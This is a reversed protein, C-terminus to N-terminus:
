QLKYQEPNKLKEMTLPQHLVSMLNRDSVRTFKFRDEEFDRFSRYNLAYLRVEKLRKYAYMSDLAEMAFSPSMNVAKELHRMATNLERKRNMYIMSNAYEYHLVAMDPVKDLAKAFADQVNTTRAGYTLRGSFKGVRRMIGADVGALLALALPHDPTVALTRNALEKVKRLYGRAVAVPIPAEEAIRGLAYLRGMINFVAMQRVAAREDEAMEKTLDSYERTKDVVEQLLMEKVSKRDALYIGYLVQSFRGPLLGLYGLEAGKNRAKQYRGAFFLRWTDILEDHYRQPDNLLASDVDSVAGPYNNITYRILEVSPYPAQIGRMLHDWKARIQEPTYDFYGTEFPVENWDERFIRGDVEIKEADAAPEVGEPIRQDDKDNQDQTNQASAWPACSVAVFFVLLRLTLKRNRM